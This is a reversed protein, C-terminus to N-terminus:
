TIKRQLHFVKGVCLIECSRYSAVPVPSVWAPMHDHAYNVHAIIISLSLSTIDRPPLNSPLLPPYPLSNYKVVYCYAVSGLDTATVSRPQFEAM